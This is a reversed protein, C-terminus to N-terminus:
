NLIVYINNHYSNAPNPTIRKTAACLIYEKNIM